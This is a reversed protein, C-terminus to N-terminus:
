KKRVRPASRRTRARAEVLATLLEDIERQSRLAYPARSGTRIGVRVALLRRPEGSAFVLEDTEDDGVYLATDCGLRVRVRELATGKHPAGEPMLNVVQKGGIVRSPGLPAIASLIAQRAEPKRPSRRYHVSLSLRKDEIWVGEVAPGGAALVRELSAQWRKVDRAHQRDTGGRSRGTEAGHNGIVARLAVGALRGLTDERSRGSIVACPYLRAVRALLRRTSPRMAAAAPDRVIPALTGDFDFALLLRTRTFTDLVERHAPALLRKV